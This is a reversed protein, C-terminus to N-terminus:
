GIGEPFSLGSGVHTFRSSVEICLAHKFEMQKDDRFSSYSVLLSRYIDWFINPIANGSVYLKCMNCHMAM